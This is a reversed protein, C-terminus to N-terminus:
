GTNTKQQYAKTRIFGRPLSLPMDVLHRYFSLKESNPMQRNAVFILLIKEGSVAPDGLASNPVIGQLCGAPEIYVTHAASLLQHQGFFASFPLVLFALKGSANKGRRALLSSLIKAEPLDFTKGYTRSPPALINKQHLFKSNTM